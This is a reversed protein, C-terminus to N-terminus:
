FSSPCSTFQNFWPWGVQSRNWDMLCADGPLGMPNHSISFSPLKGKLQLQIHPWGLTSCQCISFSSKDTMERVMATRHCFEWWPRTPPLVGTVLLRLSLLQNRHALSLLQLPRTQLPWLSAPWSAYVVASSPSTHLRWLAVWGKSKCMWLM